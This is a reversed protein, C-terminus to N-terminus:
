KEIRQDEIWAILPAFITNACEVFADDLPEEIGRLALRYARHDGEPYRGERWKRRAAAFRDRKANMYDWASKPYFHLPSRLGRAYLALLERMRANADEM